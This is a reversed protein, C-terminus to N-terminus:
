ILETVVFKPTTGAVYIEGQFVSSGEESISGGNGDSDGTGGKLVSHFVTASAAAGFRVFIPNTGVNQIRWGRRVKAGGVVGGTKTRRADLAKGAATVIAPVNAEITPFQQM